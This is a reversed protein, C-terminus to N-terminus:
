VIPSSPAVEGSAVISAVSTLPELDAVLDHTQRPYVLCLVGQILGLSLGIVNPLIIVPDRRSLGYAIWFSTNTWNMFMTRLHISESNRETIVQQLTQLPAGYFFILNANVVVGVVAAADNKSFWGVYTAVVAWGALIRLLAREQPAVVLEEESQFLGPVEDLGEQSETRSSADWHEQSPRQHQHAKQSEHIDLYQLKAAGMNLWISLILGPLNGAVVYPDRTYYGYIVWGLCNGTQMTWPFPNLPGLSGKLLAQRLDRVPAAMILIRHSNSTTSCKMCGKL